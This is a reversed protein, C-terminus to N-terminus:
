FTAQNRVETLIGEAEARVGPDTRDAGDDFRLQWVLGDRGPVRRAVVRVSGGGQLRRLTTYAVSRTVRTRVEAPLDRPEALRVRRIRGDAVVGDEVEVGPTVTLTEEAWVAKHIEDWGLRHWEESAAKAPLWLAKTSAVATSGDSTTGWTIVREGSELPPVVAPAERRLLKDLLGM